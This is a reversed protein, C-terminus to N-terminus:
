IFPVFKGSRPVDRITAVMIPPPMNANGTAKTLTHNIFPRRTRDTVPMNISIVPNIRTSM